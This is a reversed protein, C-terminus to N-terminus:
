LSRIEECIVGHFCGIEADDSRNEEREEDGRGEDMGVEEFVRDEPSRRLIDEYILDIEAGICESTGGFVGTEGIRGTKHRADLLLSLPPWSIPGDREVSAEIDDMIEVCEHM